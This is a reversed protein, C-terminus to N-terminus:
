TCLYRRPSPCARHQERAWLAGGQGPPPAPEPNCAARGCLSLLDGYPLLVALLTFSLDTPLTSLPLFGRELRGSRPSPRQHARKSWFAAVSAEEFCSRGWCRGVGGRRLVVEVRKEVDRCAEAAGLGTWRSGVGRM